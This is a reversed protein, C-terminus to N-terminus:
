VSVRVPSASVCGKWTVPSCGAASAARADRRLAWFRGAVQIALFRSSRSQRSRYFLAGMADCGTLLSLHDGPWCRDLPILSRGCARWAPSLHRRAPPSTRASRSRGAPIPSRGTCGASGSSCAQRPGPSAARAGRQQAVALHGAQDRDRHLLQTDGLDAESSLPSPPPRRHAALRGHDGRGVALIGPDEPPASLRNPLWGM